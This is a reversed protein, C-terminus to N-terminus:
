KDHRKIFIYHKISVYVIGMFGGLLAFFICILVRKPESKKEMVAPPDIYEFVYYENAEILTLKKTEEELIQAIAEKVESINAILIKKNLYNIAKESESKDKQRYFANVQDVMIEIWQKAIFPSQHKMSLTVFGTNKDESINLNNKKFVMFSEQASPTQSFPYSYDRVWLNLDSNYINKEYNLTNSMPDWSKIAMLDPLFINPLVKNEFFSLSSLKKIAKPSNSENSTSPFSVGALGALGAYNQLSKSIANSTNVPNLLAESKYINPLYLSYVVGILSLFTISLFIIYKGQWLVSFFERLDIEGDLNDSPNRNYNDEM